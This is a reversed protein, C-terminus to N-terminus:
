FSRVYASPPSSRRDASVSERREIRQPATTSDSFDIPRFVISDNSREPVFIPESEDTPIMNFAESHSSASLSPPTLTMSMGLLLIFLFVM